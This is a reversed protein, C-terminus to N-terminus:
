STQRQIIMVINENLQGACMGKKDETKKKNVTLMQKFCAQRGLKHHFFVRSFLNHLRELRM